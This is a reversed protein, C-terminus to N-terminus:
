KKEETKTEEPKKSDLSGPPAKINLETLVEQTIDPLGASYMFTPVALSDAAINAVLNYGAAKSKNEVVERIDKFIGERMRQMQEQVQTTFNRQYNQVSTEIERIELLKSNAAEKRKRQEETSVAPDKASTDLQKFEATLKEYDELMRKKEKEFEAQREKITADSQKTKWYGEFITKMNIIALKPQAQATLAAFAFALVAV